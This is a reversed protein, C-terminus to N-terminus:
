IEEEERMPAGDKGEFGEFDRTAGSVIPQCIQNWAIRTYYRSLLNLM